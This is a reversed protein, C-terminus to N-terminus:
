FSLLNRLFLIVSLAMLAKSTTNILFVAMDMFEDVCMFGMNHRTGEYEKGPNGLGVILKM